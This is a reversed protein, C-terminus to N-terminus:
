REQLFVTTLSAPLHLLFLPEGATGDWKTGGERSDFCVLTLDRSLSDKM